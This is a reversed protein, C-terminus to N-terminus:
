VAASKERHSQSQEAALTFAGDLHRHNSAAGPRFAPWALAACAAAGLWVAPWGAAALLMPIASPALWFALFAGTNGMALASGVRGNGALTALETFAVGHWASAAIGGAVLLMSLAISAFLPLASQAHATHACWATAAALLVFLVVSLAACARLWANRNGHRDTWRGSWVRM